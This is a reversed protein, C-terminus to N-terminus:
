NSIKNWFPWTCRIWCIRTWHLPPADRRGRCGEESRRWRSSIYRERTRTRWGRCGTRGWWRRGCRWWGTEECSPRCWACSIEGRWFLSSLHWRWLSCSPLSTDGTCAPLFGPSQWRWLYWAPSQWCALACNDSWLLALPTVETWIPDLWLHGFVKLLILNAVVSLEWFTVKWDRRQWQWCYIHLMAGFHHGFFPYLKNFSFYTDLFLAPSM